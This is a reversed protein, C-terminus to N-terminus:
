PRDTEADHTQLGREILVAYAKPLTYGHEDAFVVVEERKDDGLDIRPRM